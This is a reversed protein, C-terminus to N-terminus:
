PVNKEWRFYRRISVQSLFKFNGFPSTLHYRSAHYPIGKPDWYWCLFFRPLFYGSIHNTNDISFFFPYLSLINLWVSAGGRKKGNGGGLSGSFSFLFSLFQDFSMTFKGKQPDSNWTFSFHYILKKSVFILRHYGGKLPGVFTHFWLERSVTM